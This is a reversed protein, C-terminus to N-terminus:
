LIYMLHQTSAALPVTLALGAIPMWIRKYERRALVAVVALLALIGSGFFGLYWTLYIKTVPMGWPWLQCGHCLAWAALPALLSAWCSAKQFDTWTESTYEPASM